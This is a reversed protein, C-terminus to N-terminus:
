ANSNSATTGTNSQGNKKGGGKEKNFLKAIAAIFLKGADAAQISANRYLSMQQNQKGQAQLCIDRSKEAQTRLTHEEDYVVGLRLVEKEATEARQVAFGETTQAALLKKELETIRFNLNTVTQDAPPTPNVPPDIVPEPKKEETPPPQVPEAPKAIAPESQGFPLFECHGDEFCWWRENRNGDAPNDFWAGHTYKGHKLLMATTPEAIGIPLFEEFGDEYVWWRQNAKTAPNDYWAGKEYVTVNLTPAALKKLQWACRASNPDIWGAFGNNAETKVALSNCPAVGFHLHCGNDPEAITPIPFVNGTNGSYGILQGRMVQQGVVVVAKTFHAYITIYNGNPHFIKVYNGYGGADYAVGVITGDNAAVIPTNRPCAFDMGDHGGIGYKAYAAPNQGFAQTMPFDGIFIDGLIYNM